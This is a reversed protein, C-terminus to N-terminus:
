LSRVFLTIPMSRKHWSNRIRAEIMAVKADGYQKILSASHYFVSKDDIGKLIGDMDAYTMGIEGEDTQGEWLEASPSKNIISDPIDKLERALEFIETKYLDGIPEVDVGGDGYKTFYGLLIETKNSTGIVLGNLEGAFAYLISMRVRARMNGNTLKSIEKKAFPLKSIAEDVTSKINIVHANFGVSEVLKESDKISQDGYPMMIGTVKEGGIARACLSAVVASDIGGSIGIIANKNGLFERLQKVLKKEVEKYNM